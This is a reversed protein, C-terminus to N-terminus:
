RGRSTKPLLEVRAADAPLRLVAGPKLKHPDPLVARNLQYIQIWRTTRGLLQDSIGTLTDDAGVRFMPQGDADIFFGARVNRTESAVRQRPILEPFQAELVSKEPIVIKMGPRMKRPDPIRQRNYRALAQFYRASGFFSRSITWYSEGPRVVHVEVDGQPSATPEVADTAPRFDLPRPLAPALNEPAAAATRPEFQLARGDRVDENNRPFDSDATTRAPPFSQPEELPPPEEQPIGSTAPQSFDPPGTETSLPPAEDLRRTPFAPVDDAIDSATALAPGNDVAEAESGSQLESVTEDTGTDDGAQDTQWWYACGVLGAGIISAIVLGKVSLWNMATGGQEWNLDPDISGLESGPDGYVSTGGALEQGGGETPSVPMASESAAGEDFPAGTTEDAGVM